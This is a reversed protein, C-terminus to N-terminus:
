TRAVPRDDAPVSRTDGADTESDSTARAGRGLIGAAALTGLTLVATIMIAAAVLWILHGADSM